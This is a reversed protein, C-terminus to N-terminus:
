KEFNGNYTTQTKTIVNYASGSLKVGGLVFFM